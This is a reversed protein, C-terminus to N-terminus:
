DNIKKLIERARKEWSWNKMIMTFAEKGLISRKEESDLLLLVADAFHSLNGKRVKLMGKPYYSEYAKLDFGVAPIGFAMAEASAMGGSDYFAPHVVLKSQSFIKFKKPGDFVYGFLEVNKGLRLSKIRLEVEDRLPGDGIMALKVDPKKDVVKKWIDILEVVGKQPHLRGQFVADYIKKINKNKNRWSEIKKLPVAGLVVVVNGVEDMKPFQKREDENNVLVKDAYKGILPKIPLQVFWYLFAKLNYGEKREVEAYGTLPNPATQYWAAVWKVRPHRIKLILAPLSDMWFESASFVVTSSKNVLNLRLSSMVSVVIRLLYSTLFSINALRGVLWKNININRTESLKQEELMKVGMEWTYISIQVKKGWRRALEILIRDGGSFGPWNIAMAIINVQGIQTKKSM